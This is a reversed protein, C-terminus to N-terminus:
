FKTYKSPKKHKVVDCILIELIIFFAKQQKEFARKM